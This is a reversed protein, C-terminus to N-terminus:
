MIAENGKVCEASQCWTYVREVFADLADGVVKREEQSILDQCIFLAWNLTMRAEDVRGAWQAHKFRQREAQTFQLENQM